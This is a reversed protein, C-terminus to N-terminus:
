IFSFKPTSLTYYSIVNVCKLINICCKVQMTRQGCGEGFQSPHRQLFHGNHKPQTYLHTDTTNEPRLPGHVTDQWAWHMMMLPQGDPSSADLWGRRPSQRPGERGVLSVCVFVCLQVHLIIWWHSLLSSDARESTHMSICLYLQCKAAIPLLDFWLFFFFFVILLIFSKYVKDDNTTWDIAVTYEM